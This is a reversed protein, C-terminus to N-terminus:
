GGLVHESVVNPRNGIRLPPPLASGTGRAANPIMPMGGTGPGGPVAPPEGAAVASLPTIKASPLSAAVNSMQSPAATTWSQPVSLMGV